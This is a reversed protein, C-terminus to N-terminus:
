VRCQLWFPVPVVYLRPNKTVGVATKGAKALKKQRRLRRVGRRLIVLSTMGLMSPVELTM